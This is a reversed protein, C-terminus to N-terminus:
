HDAVGDGDHDHSGDAEAEHDDDEVGDDEVLIYKITRFAIKADEGEAPTTYAIDTKNDEENNELDTCTLYYFLRNFQLSARINIEGYAAEYNRYAARGLSKKYAKFVEDTVLFNKANEVAEAKVDDTQEDYAGAGIDKNIYEVVTNSVGDADLAKACAYMILLPGIAEKAEKEIAAEITISAKKAGTADLLYKDLDGEYHKYNTVDETQDNGDDYTGEYDWVGLQKPQGKKNKPAFENPNIRWYDASAKLKVLVQKNYNEFYYDLHGFMRKVAKDNAINILEGILELDKTSLNLGFPLSAVFYKNHIKPIDLGIYRCTNIYKSIVSHNFVAKKENSNLKTILDNLSIEADLGRILGNNNKWIDEWYYRQKGIVGKISVGSVPKAVIRLGDMANDLGLNREEYSRFILGNGFQEYYNGVTVELYDKKYSAYRYPIGVGKYQADFGLIPNLYSEFRLGASFDGSTYNINAFANSLLKENVKEAGIISDEKSAQIDMQFNGTVKGGLISQAYSTLSFLSLILVVLIKKM